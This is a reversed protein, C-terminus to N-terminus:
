KPASALYSSPLQHFKEKFCKAFHAPNEFGVEISVQSVTGFKKKLLEAARQLRYSRIFQNPAEGTLATIKRYLTARNMYLKKSLQEVNFSSDSLNKEIVERMENIFKQDMSSVSIEAPQLLMQKQIKEQLHSRLDILNKIRVALIKSNFPKTVYDDAGTELGKVVSEESAKATLLIIPVHSTKIDNKLVRCLECGDVGPMMIDSVILDPIIERAKKIGEEGDAAEIVTYDKKLPACIYKRVDAHDEVVLLVQRDRDETDDQDTHEEKGGTDRSKVAASEGLEEDEESVSNIGTAMYLSELKQQKENKSLSVPDDCIEEPQLHAAGMPLRIVFETGKGEQSHVDIRGHHLVVNEKVIALGIGVGKLAELKSGESQFFRDFIHALQEKPIGTGTDRISINVFSQKSTKGEGKEKSDWKERFVSVTIKGGEPTFKVANILLNYIVEEMKGADFYLSANDDESILEMELHNQQFVAKFSVLIEKIFPVIPLFSAELRMKGSDFRSLELLQNILALLRQSNRLMMSLQEKQQKDRNDSYLQEIPGMILTLPTRFEHSINAFFRSKVRDMEKLKNSQDKLQRNKEQIEKTREKITYELKQKEMELRKSRWKVVGFMLLFAGIGYLVLAWWTNYWPPLVRFRFIDEEGIHQYVNRGRVRFVYRGPDLNTYSRKTDKKWASWDEDYGELLCQYHTEDEAEFYPAAFEFQLNRSKYDLTPFDGGEAQDGKNKNGNFILTDNVLVKQILTKFGQRYNKEILTDYRILGDNGAFWVARGNPDPYIANVQATPIRRFPTSDISYVGDKGPLAEYNRSQSHIWINKKADEIIRFVPENGGAFRKGITMDPVFRRGIEDFRFIGKETAFVTHGAAAAVSIHGSPLGHSTEFWSIHYQRIDGSFDMKLVGGGSTVLWLNGNGEEVISRIAQNISEFRYEVGWKDRKKILSVLRNNTGCWARSRNVGSPLLVYSPEKLINYIRNTGTDVQFVGMSTAALISRDISLLSWCNKSIGHSRVFNRSSAQFYLGSTTGVYLDGNHRVVSLALGHLGTREDHISIPSAYELKSIGKNLCLWLNKERDEFVYHVRDDQLGSEKNLIYKLGGHPTMIVLGGGLTALAFDGNSLRIASYLGNRKLYSDVETPFPKMRSGDFLYFGDAGTGILINASDYRLMMFIKIDNFIEGGPVLTLSENAMQVLGVGKQRIFLKNDCWFSFYFRDKAEWVRMQKSNWRFLYESTQFYIGEPAAYIKWVDSFVKKENPLFHILSIYKLNEEPDPALYGIDNKGGVYITGTNDAALSRVTDFGPIGTVSWSVGDYKLVGGNNAVYIVGNKDQVIGWNQSQHDYEKYSYNRLYKYGSDDSKLDIPFILYFCLVFIGFFCTINKRGTISFFKLAM